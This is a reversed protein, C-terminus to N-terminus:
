IRIIFEQDGRPIIHINFTPLFYTLFLGVRRIQDESRRRLANEFGCVIILISSVTRHVGENEGAESYDLVIRIKSDIEGQSVFGEILDARM